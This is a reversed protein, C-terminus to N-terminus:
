NTRGEKVTTTTPRYEVVITHGREGYHDLDFNISLQEAKPHEDFEFVYAFPENVVTLSAGIQYRGLPRGTEVDRIVWRIPKALAAAEHEDFAGTLGDAPNGTVVHECHEDLDRLLRAETYSRYVEPDPEDTVIRSIQRRRGLGSGLTLVYIHEYM